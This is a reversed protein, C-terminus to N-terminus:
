DAGLEIVPLEWAAALSAVDDGHDGYVVGLHHELGRDFVTSLVARVPRDWRLVGCTGQFPRPRQLIEGGGIVMSLDGGSQSLRAVTVRGPRLAFQNALARHRNPHTIAVPRVDPDALSVPAVGCHWVVSTDDGEDSDVLDAVFPDSGAIERLVLATAAGYLDAECVGPVGDETLMAMPTCVAGGYETMCEPWCRTALASWGHRDAIARLGAHLAVSEDLGAASTEADLDMAARVREVTAARVAAPAADAQSFLDALPIRDLEIGTAARMEDGDGMCPEFGSPPDGVVGIRRGSLRAAISRGADPQPTVRGSRVGRDVDRCADHAVREIAGRLAEVARESAPDVHLFEVRHARRRLLYAALNAGCLSNLRLRGGTRAEPFSWVVIPSALRDAVRGVLSSDSFTAQLVVTLEPTDTSGTLAADLTADLESVDTLIPPEALVDVGFWALATTAAAVRQAALELDFTPRGIAVVLIRRHDIANAPIHTM